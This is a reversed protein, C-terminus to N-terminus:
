YFFQLNSFVFFTLTECGTDPRWGQLEARRATSELTSQNRAVDSRPQAAASFDARLVRRRGGGSVEGDDQRTSQLHAQKAPQRDASKSRRVGRAADRGAAPARGDRRQGQDRSPSRSFTEIFVATTEADLNVYNIRQLYRPMGLHLHKDFEMLAAYAAEAVMHKPAGFM